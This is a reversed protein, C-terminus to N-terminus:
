NVRTQERNSATLYLEAVDALLEVLPFFVGAAVLFLM